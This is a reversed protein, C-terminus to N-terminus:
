VPCSITSFYGFNRPSDRMLMIKIESNTILTITPAVTRETVSSFTRLCTTTWPMMEM